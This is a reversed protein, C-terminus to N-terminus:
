SFIELTEDNGKKENKCDKSKSIISRLNHLAYGSPAASESISPLAPSMPIVNPLHPNEVWLNIEHDNEIACPIFQLCNSQYSWLFGLTCSTLIRM